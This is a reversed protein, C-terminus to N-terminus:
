RIFRKIAYLTAIASLVMFAIIAFFWFYGDEVGLQGPVHVNMGWMGTIVTMPLMVSAIMTMKAALENGKTSVQTIEISIQALYNSYSRSLAKEYQILDQKMTIAHDYIDELFILIDRSETRM